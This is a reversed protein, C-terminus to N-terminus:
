APEIDPKRKQKLQSTVANEIIEIAEDESVKLYWENAPMLCVVPAMKCRDTCGTKIVQVQKKLYNAKVFEKFLKLLDKGGKKRCKKGCCTYLVCEPTKYLNKDM